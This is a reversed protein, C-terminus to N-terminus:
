KVGPVLWYRLLGWEFKAPIKQDLEDIVLEKTVPRDADIPIDYLRHEPSTELSYGPGFVIM